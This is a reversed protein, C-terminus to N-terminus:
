EIPEHLSKTLLDAMNKLNEVYDYALPDLAIVNGNISRAITKAAKDSFQPQVFIIRVGDKRAQDTLHAIYKAGPEKGGPTIAKQRLGYARCFYSYAPHFVYITRGKFSALTKQLHGDLTKLEASLAEFNTHYEKKGAPDYKILTERIKEAQKLALAPDLWTHPDIDGAPHHHGNHSEHDDLMKLKIGDQLNVVPLDPLIRALKPMLGNEFPVGIRFFIDASALKAIQKPTPSYTAPSHGPQVLTSVQVRAGGVRQVFYKAPLISVFVNIPQKTGEAKAPSILHGCFILPFLTILIMNICLATKVTTQNRASHIVHAHM